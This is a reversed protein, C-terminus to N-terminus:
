ADAPDERLLPTLAARARFLRSKVTGEPVDLERAISALDLGAAQLVVCQRQALPLSALARRMDVADGSAAPVDASPGLRLVARLGNRTKRRRNSLFGLAVKRVWAEPDDYRSVADWCGMLRVFADQVAEEAEHRDRAVAGVVGVLRPYAAEYLDQLSGGSSDAVTVRSVGAVLSGPEM